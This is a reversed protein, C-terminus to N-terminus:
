QINIIKNKILTYIDGGKLLKANPFMKGHLQAKQIIIIKNKILTCTHRWRKIFKCKPVNKVHKCTEWSNALDFLFVVELFARSVLKNNIDFRSLVCHKCYLLVIM